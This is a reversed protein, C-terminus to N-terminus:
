IAFRIGAKVATGTTNFGYVEEFDTNLVNKVDGFLKFQGNAFRQEVYLNLLTYADLTVDERAFNNAPNFFLDDREGNYEGDVRVFLNETISLGANFGVSHTPRRILNDQRDESGDEGFTTINGDIYNYWFGTKLRNNIIWDASIEIGNDNQRDRNVYGQTAFIILDNVERNFYQASLKLTQDMLYAEFGANYYVSTQPDLDPNPGFPGFLEDLTPAKFGTSVSGYLKVNSSLQYSPSVSFTSNSGYESHNNLRYGIEASFGYLDQLYLTAYPSIIQADSEPLENTAPLKFDQANIGALVKLNNTAQYHSFIDINQFTGEFENEGFQTEFLRETRTFNYTANVRLREANYEAQVGPNLMQLSYVNDADQFAGEDYEGENRSYQLFPSVTLGNSIKFDTKGYFSDLRYGDDGFTGSNEPDRAASFGDSSERNYTFTYRVNDGVAGDVGLNGNFSNYRGYSLQGTGRFTEDIGTNTILNVVGAIADTGYLTSQSGKLVEIRELNHTSLLRLDFLGGVGSPDSVPMGDVLILTNQAVAGQMYLIRGNSPAGYSDNVRIGSQQNLLQSIDRGSNQEIEQRDIVLVPKTTERQSLPIKSATVVIQGLELTDPIAETQQAQLTSTCLLVGLITIIIKSMTIQRQTSGILKRSFLSLHVALNIWTNQLSLASGCERGKRRFGSNLKLAILCTKQSVGRRCGERGKVNPVTAFIGSTHISSVAVPITGSNRNKSSCPM